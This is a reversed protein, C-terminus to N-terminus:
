SHFRANKIEHYVPVTLEDNIKVSVPTNKDTYGLATLYQDALQKINILTQINKM